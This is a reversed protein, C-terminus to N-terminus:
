ADALITAATDDQRRKLEVQSPNAMDISIELAPESQSRVYAIIMPLLANFLMWVMDLVQGVVMTTGFVPTLGWSPYNYGAVVMLDSGFKLASVCLDLVLYVGACWRTGGRGGLFRYEINSEVIYWVNLCALMMLVLQLGLFGATHGRVNVYAIIVFIMRFWSCLLIMIPFLCKMTTWYRRSTWGKRYAVAVTAFDAVVYLILTYEFIPYIM